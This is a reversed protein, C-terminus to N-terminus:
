IEKIIHTYQYNDGMLHKTNDYKQVEKNRYKGKKQVEM